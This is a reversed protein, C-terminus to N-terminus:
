KRRNSNFFDIDIMGKDDVYYDAKPKGLYLDNYLCGWSKLQKETYKYYKKIALAQNGKCSDMGRATMYVVTHGNLYLRNIIEIRERIPSCKEYNGHEDSCITGDIDFVYTLKEM